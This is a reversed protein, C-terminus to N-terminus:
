LVKKARKEAGDEAASGTDTDPKIPILYRSMFQCDLVKGLKFGVGVLYGSKEFGMSEHLACSASGAGTAPDVSVVAMLCAVEADRCRQLCASLLATGVGRRQWGPATYIAHECTKQWGRRGRFDDVTCYGVITNTDETDDTAVAVLWPLGRSSARIWKEMWEGVLPLEDPAAAWTCTDSEVYPAYITCMASLDKEGAVSRISFPHQHQQQQQQPPSSLSM